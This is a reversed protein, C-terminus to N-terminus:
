DGINLDYECKIAAGFWLGVPPRHQPRRRGYGNHRGRRGFKNFYIRSDHRRCLCVRTWCSFILVIWWRHFQGSWKLIGCGGKGSSEGAPISFPSFCRTFPVEEGGGSVFTRSSRKRSKKNKARRGKLMIENWINGGGVRWRRELLESTLVHEMGHFLFRRTEVPHCSFNWRYQM